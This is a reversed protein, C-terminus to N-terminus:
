VPFGLVDPEADAATELVIRCREHRLAPVRREEVRVTEAEREAGADLAVVRERQHVARQAEIEPSLGVGQGRARERARAVSRGRTEWDAAAADRHAAFENRAAGLEPEVVLSVAM